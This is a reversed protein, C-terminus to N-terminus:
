GHALAELVFEETMIAMSVKEMVSCTDSTPFVITNVLAHATETSVEQAALIANHPRMLVM